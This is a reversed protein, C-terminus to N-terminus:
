DIVGDVRRHDAAADFHDGVQSPDLHEAAAPLDGVRLLDPGQVVGDGIESYWAAALASRRWRTPTSRRDGLGLHLLAAQGVIFGREAKVATV